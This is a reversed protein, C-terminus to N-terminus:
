SNPDSTFIIGSFFVLNANRKPEARIYFNQNTKILETKKMSNAASMGPM